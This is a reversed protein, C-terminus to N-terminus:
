PADATARCGVEVTRWCTRAASRCGPARGRGRPHSPASATARRGAGHAEVELDLQLLVGARRRDLVRPSFPLLAVGREARNGRDLDRAWSNVECRLRLAASASVNVGSCASGLVLRLARDVSNADRDVVVEGFALEVADVPALRPRAVLPQAGGSSSNRRSCHRRWRARGDVATEFHTPRGGTAARGRSCASSERSRGWFSSYALVVNRDRHQILHEGPSGADAAEGLRACLESLTAMRTLWFMGRPLGAPGRGLEGYIRRAGDTDGADFRLVGLGARWGLTHGGSAALQEVVRTLKGVRGGACAGASCRARGCARRTSRAHATRRRLHSRRSSPSPSSATSSRSCGAPAPPSRATSRSVWGPRLSTSSPTGSGPRSSTVSRSCTTCVGTTVDAMLEQGAALSALEADIGLRQDLHRIDLLTVHRTASSRSCFASTASSRLSPSRRKPLSTRARARPSLRPEGGAALPAECAATGAATRARRAGERPSRPAQRGLVGDRLLTRRCRLRGPRPARRGGREAFPMSSPTARRRRATWRRVRRARVRGLALLVDCRGTADGADSLELADM